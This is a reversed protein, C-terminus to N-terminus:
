ECECQDVASHSGKGDHMDQRRSLQWKQRGALLWGHRNKATEYGFLGPCGGFYVFAVCQPETVRRSRRERISQLAGWLRALCPQGKPRHRPRFLALGWRFRCRSQHLGRECVIWRITAHADMEILRRSLAFVRHDVRNSVLHEVELRHIPKKSLVWL